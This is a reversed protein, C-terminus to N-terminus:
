GGCHLALDRVGPGSRDGTSESHRGLRPPQRRRGELGLFTQLALHLRSVARVHEGTNLSLVDGMEKLIRQALELRAERQRAKGKLDAVLNEAFGLVDM